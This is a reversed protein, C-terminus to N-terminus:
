HGIAPNTADIISALTAAPMTQIDKLEAEEEAPAAAKDDLVPLHSEPDVGAQVLVDSLSTKPDLKPNAEAVNAPASPTRHAFMTQIGGVEKEVIQAIMVNEAAYIAPLEERMAIVEKTFTPDQLMAVVKPDEFLELRAESVGSNSPSMTSVEGGDGVELSAFAANEDSGAANMHAAAQSTGSEHTRNAVRNQALANQAQRLQRTSLNQETNAPFGAKVRMQDLNTHAQNQTSSISFSSKMKSFIMNRAAALKAAAPLHVTFNEHIGQPTKAADDQRWAGADLPARIRAAINAAEFCPDGSKVPVNEQSYLLHLDIAGGKCKSGGGSGGSAAVPIAFMHASSGMAGPNLGAAGMAFNAALKVGTKTSALVEGGYRDCIALADCGRAITEVLYRRAPDENKANSGNCNPMGLADCNKDMIDKGNQDSNWGRDVKSNLAMQQSVQGLIPGLAMHFQVARMANQTRAVTAGGDTPKQFDKNIELAKNQVQAERAKLRNYKATVPAMAAAPAHAAAGAAHGAANTQANQNSTNLVDQVGKNIAQSQRSGIGSGPIIKADGNNQATLGTIVSLLSSMGSFDFAAAHVSSSLFSSCFLMFFIFLVNQKISAQFHCNHNKRM